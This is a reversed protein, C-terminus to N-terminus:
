GTHCWIKNHTRYQLIKDILDLLTYSNFGVVTYLYKCVLKALEEGTLRSAKDIM